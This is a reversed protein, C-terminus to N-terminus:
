RNQDDFSMLADEVQALLSAWILEDPREHWSPEIELVAGGALEARLRELGAIEEGYRDDGVQLASLADDLASLWPSPVPLVPPRVPPEPQTSRVQRYRELAAILAPLQSSDASAAYAAQVVDISQGVWTFLQSITDKLQAIRVRIDDASAPGVFGVAESLETATTEIAIAIADHVAQVIPNTAETM